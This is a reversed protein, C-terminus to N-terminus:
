DQSEHQNAKNRNSSTLGEKLFAVLDDAEDESLYLVELAEDRYDNAEDTVGGFNYHRVVDRLTAFRGNHMYPATRGIERLQPTRFAGHDEERGTVARRGADALKPDAAGINHFKNDTLEPGSHCVSCRARGFFLKMGRRASTSLSDRDGRLYRDFPTETSVITREYAALAQAIREASVAGGFVQEFAKRYEAVGRLKKEMAEVPLDMEAANQIPLLAQKELTAARGDWTLPRSYAVNILSPTHRSGARDDIGRALRRGDSFGQQPDHCTACSLRDNRSLRADFFLKRGLATKAESAPNERPHEVPSLPKPLPIKADIAPSAAPQEGWLAAAACWALLFAASAAILSRMSVSRPKKLVQYRAGVALM